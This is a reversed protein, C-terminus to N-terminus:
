EENRWNSNSKNSSKKYKGEIKRKKEITIKSEGREM